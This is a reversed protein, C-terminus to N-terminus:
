KIGSNENETFGSKIYNVIRWRDEQDLQWSHSGMFGSVSGRTIIHFLEGDPKKQVVDGDLLPLDKRFKKSSVLHGDGKGKVGHCMACYKEFQEKGIQMDKSSKGVPNVLEKGAKVQGEVTLPYRYPVEGRSISGKVPYQATKGDAFNSNESYYEYAGSRAMDDFYEYGPHNRDRSCATALVMLFCIAANFLFNHPTITNM